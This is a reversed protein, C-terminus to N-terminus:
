FSTMDICRRYEKLFKGANSIYKLLPMMNM